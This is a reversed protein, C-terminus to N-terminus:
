QGSLIFSEPHKKMLKKLARQACEMDPFVGAQVRYYGDDPDKAMRSGKYGQSLLADRVQAAGKEDSFAGVQIYLLGPEVAKLQPNGEQETDNGLKPAPKPAPKVAPKKAPKPRATPAPRKAPPETVITKRACGSLILGAALLLITFLINRKM